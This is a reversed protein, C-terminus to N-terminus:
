TRAFIVALDDSYIKKWGPMYPLVRAMPAEKRLLCYQIGYKDLLVKPDEELNYWRGYEGLVGTWTFIDTRGDIFVKQEPLSWILYGGWVYENLMRGSLATRRIFDVAGVPNSRMVQRELHAASPFGVFTLVVSAAILIANAVRNDRASEYRDWSDALLRCLVPVALIGFIFMLRNHRAAAAAGLAVMMLEELRLATRRALVLGGISGAVLLLGVGRVQLLNLPEWETVNALNEAQKTFLNLPYTVLGLGVPNLFLAGVSVFFVALLLKREKEGWRSSVVFPTRFELFSCVLFVGLVVLGLAYSGHCNVWVAFLPPLAWLWYRSRTRALYVVLLELVLFLHGLILPRIALGITGFFWGILGGLLSLKANGSYVSCLVYVLVVLLSAFGCLWLMLGRYGGLRYAAYISVEALWQHPIWAHQNTTYSFLDARPLSRTQWITEGVKLHWWTDPDNFRSRCTLFMVLSLACALMVPFSLVRRALWPMAIPSLVSSLAPAAESLKTGQAAKM